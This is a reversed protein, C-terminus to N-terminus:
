SSFREVDLNYNSLLEDASLARNYIRMSYFRNGSRTFYVGKGQGISGSSFIQNVTTASASGQEVGNLYVKKFEGSKFTAAMTVIENLAITSSQFQKYDGDMRIDYYIKRERAFFEFQPYTYLLRQSYSKGNYTLDAFKMTMEFTIEKTNDFTNMAPVVIYNKANGNFVLSKNDYALTGDINYDYYAGALNELITSNEVHGGLTNYEADTWVMLGDNNYNPISTSCEFNKMNEDQSLDITFSNGSLDNQNVNTNELYAEVKITQSVGSQVGKFIGMYLKEGQLLQELTYITKHGNNNTFVVKVNEASGDTIDKTTTATIKYTYSCDYLINSNDVSVTALTYRGNGETANTVPVGSETAYYITGVNNKHMMEATINLELKSVNTVMIPNSMKETIGGVNSSKVSDNNLIISFYAYTAGIILLALFVIAIIYYNKQIKDAKM